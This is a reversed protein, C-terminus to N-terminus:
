DDETVSNVRILTHRDDSFIVPGLAAVADTMDRDVLLINGINLEALEDAFDPHEVDPINVYPYDDRIGGYVAPYDENRKRRAEQDMHVWGAINVSPMDLTVQYSDLATRYRESPVILLYRERDLQAEAQADLELTRVPTTRMLYPYLEAASFVAFLLAFAYLMNRRRPEQQSAIFSRVRDIGAAAFPIAFFFFYPIFRNMFRFGEGAPLSRLIMSPVGFVDIVILLTIVSLLILPRRWPADRRMTIVGILGLWFYSHPIISETRNPLGVASFVSLKASPILDILAPAKELPASIAQAPPALAIYAVSITGVMCLSYIKVRDAIQFQGRLLSRGEFTLFCIFLLVGTMFFEVLSTWFTAWLCLSLLFGMRWTFRNHLLIHVYVALTAGWAYSGILNYQGGAKWVFYPCFGFFIGGIFAAAKSVRITRLLFVNYVVAGAVLMTMMTVNTGIVPGFLWGIPATLIMPVYPISRLTLNAGDPPFVWDCHIIAHGTVLAKQLWWYMWLFHFEDGGEGPYAFQDHSYLHAGMRLVIPWLMIIAILAYGAAAIALYRATVRQSEATDFNDAAPRTDVNM